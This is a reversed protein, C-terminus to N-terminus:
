LMFWMALQPILESYNYSPSLNSETTTTVKTYTFYKYTIQPGLAFGSSVDFKWGLDFQWGSGGGYNASGKSEVVSMYYTYLLSISQGVYGIAPGYATRTTDDSGTVSIRDTIYQGGLFLSSDAIYGFALGLYTKTTTTSNATNSTGSLNSSSQEYFLSPHFTLGTSSGGAAYSHNSCLTAFLFAILLLTSNKM